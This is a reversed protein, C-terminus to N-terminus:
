IRRKEYVNRESRTAPRDSINRIDDGQYTYIVVVLRGLFDVGFTAYRQENRVIQHEVTLAWEYEFVAVADAFDIGHKKKNLDAKRPDWQYDM